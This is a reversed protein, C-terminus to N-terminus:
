AFCLDGYEDIDCLIAEHEMLSRKVDILRQNKSGRFLLALSKKTEVFPGDVLVDTERLLQQSAENKILNEFTFGTYTIVSLNLEKVRRALESCAEPQLFPEGGSITVGDLLPNAKLKEIIEDIDIEYGGELAHTHPNQCGKCNHMCGQTFITYRLGPGDVISDNAFGAVRIKM